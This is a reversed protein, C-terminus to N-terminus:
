RPSPDDPSSQDPRYILAGPVGCYRMPAIDVRPSNGAFPYSQVRWNHEFRDHCALCVEWCHLEVDVSWRPAFTIAAIDEAVALDAQYRFKVGDLDTKRLLRVSRADLCRAASAALWREEGSGINRLLLLGSEHPDGGIQIPRQNTIAGGGDDAL